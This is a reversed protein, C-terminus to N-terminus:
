IHLLRELIDVLSPDHTEELTQVSLFRRIVEHDLDALPIHVHPTLIGTTRLSLLNELPAETHIFFSRITDYAYFENHALVGKDTLAFRYQKPEAIHMLYGVVGVLIFTIAMLPSNTFLAWGIIVILLLAIIIRAKPGLEFTDHEPATWELLISGFYPSTTQNEM